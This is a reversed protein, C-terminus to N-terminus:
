GIWTEYGTFRIYGTDFYRGDWIAPLSFHGPYTEICEELWVTENIELDRPIIYAAFPPVEFIGVQPEAFKRYGLRELEDARQADTTLECFGTEPHQYMMRNESKIPPVYTPMILIDNGALVAENMEDETHATKIVKIGEPKTFKSCLLTINQQEASIKLCIDPDKLVLEAIKKSTLVSTDMIPKSCLECLRDPSNKISDMRDWEANLPCFVRKMVKGEETFLEQTSIDFYLQQEM